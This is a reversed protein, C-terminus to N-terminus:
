TAVFQSKKSEKELKEALTLKKIRQEDTTEVKTKRSEAFTLQEFNVTM